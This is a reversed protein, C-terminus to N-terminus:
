SGGRDMFLMQFRGIQVVDGDGLTAKDVRVGNVYTGNLSGADSVSVEGANYELVAHSRSVTVDNLFIDCKPDRGVTLRPRDIFFREGVDPGKRVVLVPGSVAWGRAADGAEEPGETVPAFSETAGELRAGCSPCLAPYPEELPTGCAPCSTM